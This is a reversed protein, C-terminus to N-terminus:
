KIKVVLYYKRHNEEILGLKEMSSMDNKIQALHSRKHLHRFEPNAKLEDIIQATDLAGKQDLISLIHFRRDAANETTAIAREVLVNKYATQYNEKLETRLKHFLYRTIAPTSVNTLEILEKIDPKEFETLIYLYQVLVKIAYCTTYNQSADGKKLPWGGDSLQIDLLFQIGKNIQENLPNEECAIM